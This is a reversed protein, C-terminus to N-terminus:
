IELPASIRSDPLMYFGEPLRGAEAALEDLTISDLERVIQVQLQLWHRNVPCGTELPCAQLGEVCDSILLPGEIAEWIHRLRITGAPLALELGGRPGAFTNVLGVRALDAIIRRLFRPPIQMESQIVQTPLRVGPARRALCLMVRVAYDTRRNIRFM